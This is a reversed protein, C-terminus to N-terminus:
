LIFNIYMYKYLIYINHSIQLFLVTQEYKELVYINKTVNIFYYIIICMEIFITSLIVRLDSM